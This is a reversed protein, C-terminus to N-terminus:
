PSQGVVLQGVMGMQRHNGVPCHFVYTGAQEPAQIQLTRMQGPPVPTPLGVNGAPLAFMISHPARGRNFLQVLVRQGPEATIEAPQFGFDM